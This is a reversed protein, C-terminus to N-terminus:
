RGFDPSPHSGGSWGGQSIGTGSSSASTDGGTLASPYDTSSGTIGANTSAPYDSKRYDASTREGPYAQMRRPYEPTGSMEYSPSDAPAYNVDSADNDVNVMNDTSAGSDTASIGADVGANRDECECALIKAGSGLVSMAVLALVFKLSSSDM